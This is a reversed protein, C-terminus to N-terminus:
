CPASWRNRGKNEFVDTIASIFRRNRLYIEATLSMGTQLPIAQQGVQLTQRSLSLVAPFYLGKADTGLVRRQEDPTLADSGVRKM